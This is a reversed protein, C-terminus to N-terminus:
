LKNLLLDVIIHNYVTWNLKSLIGYVPFHMSQM